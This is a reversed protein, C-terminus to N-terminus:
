GVVNGVSTLGAFLEATAWDLETRITFASRPDLLVHGMRLPPKPRDLRTLRLGGCERFLDDRELRLRDDPRLPELGLGNHLYFVEDDRRVGVVGHADFLQMIHIAQRMVMGSRFPSEVTLTIEAQYRRGQEAEIHLVDTKTEALDVNLGARDASRQHVGVCSGYRHAVHDLVEQDPSTVVLRDIADCALAEDITWDILPRNALLRLPASGPDARPGRVPIIGIVSPRPAGRKAVHKAVLKARAALIYSEDRTLNSGHQRYFFLPEPVSVVRHEPGVHLWLDLGDQCSVTEDYGGIDDLFSRRVLTCAGHAPLDSMAELANVDHRKVRRIVRGDSDVDFYDPFVLVADPVKAIEAVMKGVASPVLYDDADLRMLFDGQSARIAANACATLGLNAAQRIVRVRRSKQVEALIGESGDDSADDVILLEILPYDQNLVSDIAQRLFRGYNRNLVYVTVLPRGPHEAGM